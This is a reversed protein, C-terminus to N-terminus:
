MPHTSLRAPSQPMCIEPLSSQCSFNFSNRPLKLKHIAALFCVKRATSRLKIQRSSSGDSEMRTAQPGGPHARKMIRGNSLHQRLHSACDSRCAIEIRVSDPGLGPTCALAVASCPARIDGSRAPLTLSALTILLTAGPAVFVCGAHVLPALAASGCFLYHRM